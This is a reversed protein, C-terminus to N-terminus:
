TIFIGMGNLAQPTDNQQAHKKPQQPIPSTHVTWVPVRHDNEHRHGKKPWYRLHSFKACFVPLSQFFGLNVQGMADM